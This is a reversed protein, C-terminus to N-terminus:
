KACPGVYQLHKINALIRENPWDTNTIYRSQKVGLSQPSLLSCFWTKPRMSSIYYHCSVSVFCTTLIDSPMLPLPFFWTLSFLYDHLIKSIPSLLTFSDVEPYTPLSYELCLSCLHLPESSLLLCKYILMISDHPITNLGLM